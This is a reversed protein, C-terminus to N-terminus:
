QPIENFASDNKVTKFFTFIKRPKYDSIFVANHISFAKSDSHICVLTEIGTPCM